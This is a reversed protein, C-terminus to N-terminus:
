RESGEILDIRGRLPALILYADCASCDRHRPKLAPHAGLM